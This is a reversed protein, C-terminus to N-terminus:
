RRTLIIDIEGKKRSTNGMIETQTRNKIPTDQIEMRHKPFRNKLIEKTTALTYDRTDTRVFITSKDKMMGACLKFVTDLLLHYENKNNFRGKYKEDLTKPFPAGGLMWLRLWQDAYYNTLSYYPPSTFLLSYTKEKVKKNKSLVATSDGLIVSSNSTIKPIGKAYRWEVKKLLFDKPNIEPPNELNHDKWWNISYNIGMAKTMKMQNSLGEGIKGQLHVLILAMLTADINDNQWDLHQQAAYLFKLVEDCFCMRFFRSSKEVAQEYDNLCNYIDDIRKLLADKVAPNLKVKGYLWGVPNIEIGICNRKLVSGIYISSGRGAFPDIIFDGEMSYREITDFAFELPFMAYYPGIRAWRSEATKRGRIIEDRSIM